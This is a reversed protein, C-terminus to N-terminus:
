TNDLACHRIRPDAAAAAQSGRSLGVACISKASVQIGLMPLNADSM